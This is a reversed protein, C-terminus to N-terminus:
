GRTCMREISEVKPKSTLLSPIFSPVITQEMKGKGEIVDNKYLHNALIPPFLVFPYVLLTRPREYKKFYTAEKRHEFCTIPETLAHDRLSQNPGETFESLSLILLSKTHPFSPFSNKTLYLSVSNYEVFGM